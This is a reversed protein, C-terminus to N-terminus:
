PSRREFRWTERDMGEINKVKNHKPNYKRIMEGEINNLDNKTCRIFRVANFQIGNGSHAKIRSRINVSQGIYVIPNSEETNILFYVGCITGLPYSESHPLENILINHAKIDYQPGTEINNDGAQNNRRPRVISSIPSEGKYFDKEKAWKYINVITFIIYQITRSSVDKKEANEIIIKIDSPVIHGIKKNGIIPNIYLRYLCERREIDKTFKEKEKYYKIWITDFTSTIKERFPIPLGDKIANKCEIRMDIVKDLTIGESAWGAGLERQKGCEDRFYFSYYIDFIDSRMRSQRLRTRIGVSNQRM